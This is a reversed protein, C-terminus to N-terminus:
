RRRRPMEDKYPNPAPALRDPRIARLRSLDAAGLVEIRDAVYDGAASLRPYVRVARGKLLSPAGHATLFSGDHTVFQTHETIRITVPWEVLLMYTAGNITRFAAVEGEVSERVDVDPRPLSQSYQAFAPFSAVVLLVAVALMAAQTIRRNHGNLMSM